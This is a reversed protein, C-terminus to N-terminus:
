VLSQLVSVTQELDCEGENIKARIKDLAIFALTKHSLDNELLAFKALVAQDTVLTRKMQLNMIPFGGKWDANEKLERKKKIFEVNTKFDDDLYVFMADPMGDFVPKDVGVEFGKNWRKVCYGDGAISTFRYLIGVDDYYDKKIM